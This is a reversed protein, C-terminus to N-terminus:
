SKRPLAAQGQRKGVAALASGNLGTSPANRGGVSAPSIPRTSNSGSGPGASPLGKVTGSSTVRLVSGQGLSGGVGSNFSPTGVLKRRTTGAIRSSPTVSGVLSSIGPLADPGEQLPSSAIIWIVPQILPSSPHIELGSVDEGRGAREHKMQVTRFHSLM